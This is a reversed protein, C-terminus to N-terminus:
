GGMCANKPSCTNRRRFVDSSIRAPLSFGSRKVTPWVDIRDHLLCWVNVIAPVECKTKAQRRIRLMDDMPSYFKIAPYYNRDSRPNSGPVQYRFFAKCSFLVIFIRREGKIGSDFAISIGSDFWSCQLSLLDFVFSSIYNIYRGVKVCSAHIERSRFLSNSRM